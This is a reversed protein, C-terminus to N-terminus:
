QGNNSLYICINPDVVETVYMTIFLDLVIFYIFIIVISVIQFVILYRIHWVSYCRLIYMRLVRTAYLM